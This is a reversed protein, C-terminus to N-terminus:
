FRLSPGLIAGEALVLVMGVLIWPWSRAIRLPPVTAPGPRLYSPAWMLGSTGGFSSAIASALLVFLGVPNMLGIVLATGGITAYATWSMLRAQRLGAPDGGTMRALLRMALIAWAWYILMGGAALLVRWLPWGSVGHFVGDPSAGWDGLGSVGSFAYYGAWEFGSVAFMLWCFFRAHARGPPMARWAVYAIVATLLNLTSGAAAVIRGVFPPAGLTDCSLYFAGWERVAGGLALCAGGHGVAEHLQTATVGVIAAIAIVTPLDFRRAAAQTM